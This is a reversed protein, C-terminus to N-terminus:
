HLHCLRGNSWVKTLSRQARKQVLCYDEAERDTRASDLKLLLRVLGTLSSGGVGSTQDGEIDLWGGLGGPSLQDGPRGKAFVRDLPKALIGRCKIDGKLLKGDM